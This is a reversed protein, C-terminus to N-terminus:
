AQAVTTVPPRMTTNRLQGILDKLAVTAGHIDNWIPEAQGPQYPSFGVAALQSGASDLSAQIPPVLDGLGKEYAKPSVFNLMAQDRAVAFKAFYHCCTWSSNRSANGLTIMFAARVANEDGSALAAQMPVVVVTTAEDIVAQMGSTDIGRASWNNTFSQARVIWQQDHELKKQGLAFWDREAAKGSSSQAAAVAAMGGLLLCLMVLPITMRAITKM